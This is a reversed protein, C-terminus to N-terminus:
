GKTIDCATYIVLSRCVWGWIRVLGGQVLVESKERPWFVSKKNYGSTLEAAKEFSVTPKNKKLRDVSKTRHMCRKLTKM